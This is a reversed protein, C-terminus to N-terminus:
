TAKPLIQWSRQLLDQLDDPEGFSHQALRLVMRAHHEIALKQENNRCFPLITALAEMLRIVVAPNGEAYQRVPNFAADLMGRYTLVDAVVRLETNENYRYRSPFRVGTLHCMTATLNDICAIATYPDNIGPSLARAAIEVMQHIAFEADQRPTRVKGAVCADQVQQIVPDPLPEHSYIDALIMGTVVYNGPRRHLVIVAQYQEAIAFIAADDIFQLYGTRASQLQRKEGHQQQLMAMDPSAQEPQNEDNAEAFLQRINHSLAESIDAIVKDSQISIAIHHIFVILLVINAVTAAVALMVSLPPVFVLQDNSKIALLVILCYVYTAIYAGLVVQNIREHMFNRLLRSGFQSSALTLAVLTISFVTGAVGIMAGAIVSLVSRASDASSAFLLATTGSPQFRLQQDLYLALVAAIAALIIIMTPIFWFTSTLEGWLYRLHRM